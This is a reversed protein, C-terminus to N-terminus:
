DIHTEERYIKPESSSRRGYGGLLALVLAMALIVNALCIYRMPLYSIILDVTDM